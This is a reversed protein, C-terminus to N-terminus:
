NSPVCLNQLTQGHYMYLWMCWDSLHVTGCQAQAHVTASSNHQYRRRICQKICAHWQLIGDIIMGTDCSFAPMRSRCQHLSSELLHMSVIRDAIEHWTDLMDVHRHWVYWFALLCTWIWLIKWSGAAAKNVKQRLLSEDSALLHGDACQLSSNGGSGTVKGTLPESILHEVAINSQQPRPFLWIQVIVM